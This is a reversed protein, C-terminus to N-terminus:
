LQNSGTRAGIFRYNQLFAFFLFFNNVNSDSNLIIGDKVTSFFFSHWLGHFYQSQPVKHG